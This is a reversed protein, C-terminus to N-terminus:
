TATSIRRSWRLSLDPTNVVAIFVRNTGDARGSIAVADGSSSLDGSTLIRGLKGSNAAPRLLRLSSYLADVAEATEHHRSSEIAVLAAIDLNSAHSQRAAHSVAVLKQAVAIQGQALMSWWTAVATATLVGMIFLTLGGVRHVVQQRRAFTIQSLVGEAIGPSPRGAKLAVGSDDLWVVDSGGKFWSARRYLGDVNIPVLKRRTQAFTEVELTVWDSKVAEASCVVVLLRSRRVARDLAARLAEGPPIDEYDVFVVLGAAELVSQLRSAYAKADNRAYSIFIDHGVLTTAVARSVRAVWATM